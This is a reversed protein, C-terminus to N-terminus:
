AHGVRIYIGQIIGENLAKREATLTYKGMYTLNMEQALSLLNAL